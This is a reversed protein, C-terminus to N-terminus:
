TKARVTIKRMNESQFYENVVYMFDICYFFFKNKKSEHM